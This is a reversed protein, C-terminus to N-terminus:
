RGKTTKGPGAPAAKVAGAAGQRQAAAAALDEDRQKRDAERKRADDVYPTGALEGYTPDELLMVEALDLTPQFSQMIRDIQNRAQGILDETTMFDILLVRRAGMPGVYWVHYVNAGGELMTFECHEFRYRPFKLEQDQGPVLKGGKQQAEYKKRAVYETVKEGDQRLPLSYRIEKLPQDFNLTCDADEQTKDFSANDDELLTAGMPHRIAFGGRGSRYTYRLPITGDPEPALFELYARAIRGKIFDSGNPKVGDTVFRPQPKPLPIGLPAPSATRRALLFAGGGLLLALTWALVARAASPPPTAM